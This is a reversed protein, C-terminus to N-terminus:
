LYNYPKTVTSGLIVAINSFKKSLLDFFLEKTCEETEYHGIDAIVIKNEADFYEHYKFDSTIFIEAGSAIADKLLFSGSGGCVAVKTIPKNLLKTYRLAKVNFASKIQNLFDIENTPNAIKGVAGAGIEQNINELNELYYAVEEYPHEKNLAAIVKQQIYNPLIVEIRDEKVESKKNKTGEFPLAHDNPTYTGIGQNHFSCDSYNGINGSGAEFLAKLVKETHEPPSFTTLKTLINSKPALIKVNLLNLKEAIKFNVGNTIHDLNTHSAYIAIDNKIAKIVTREVYNKGNLKKLGKFIIPHHAIILNCGKAIAEDIVEETVDLSLLICTIETKFDGVILGANDYNEQLELPAISELFDTVTKIQM